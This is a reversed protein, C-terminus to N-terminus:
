FYVLFYWYIVERSILKGGKLFLVISEGDLFYNDFFKVGVLEFFIFYFDIGIVLEDNIVGGKIQDLWYVFMFVRIGGEYFM